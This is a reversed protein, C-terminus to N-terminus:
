QLMIALKPLFKFILAFGLIIVYPSAMILWILTTPFNINITEKKLIDPFKIDPTHNTVHFYPEMKMKSLTDNLKTVADILDEFSRSEAQDLFNSVRRDDVWPWGHLSFLTLAM